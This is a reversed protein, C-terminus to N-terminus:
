ISDVCQAGDAMDQGVLGCAPGKGPVEGRPNPSALPDRSRSLVILKFLSTGAPLLGWAGLTSLTVNEERAWSAAM